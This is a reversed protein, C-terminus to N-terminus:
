RKFIKRIFNNELIFFCFLEGLSKEDRKLVKFSRFPIKRKNFVKESALMQSHKIKQISQNKLYRHLMDKVDSIDDERERKRKAKTERAKQLQVGRTSKINEKVSTTPVVDLDTEINETKVVTSDVSM